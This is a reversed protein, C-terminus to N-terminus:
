PKVFRYQQSHKGDQIELIWVGSPIAQLELANGYSGWAQGKADRLIMKANQSESRISEPSHQLGWSPLAQNATIVSSSSLTSSSSSSSSLSSSSSNTSFTQYTNARTYTNVLKNDQFLLIGVKLNATAITWNSVDFFSTDKRLTGTLDAGKLTDGRMAKSMARFVNHHEVTGTQGNQTDMVKDEYLVTNVSWTGTAPTKAQVYRIVRIKTGQLLAEFNLGITHTKAIEADIASNRGAIDTNNILNVAFTPYGPVTV